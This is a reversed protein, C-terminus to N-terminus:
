RGQSWGSKLRPATIVNWKSRKILVEAVVESTETFGAVQTLEIHGGQSQVILVVLTEFQALHM